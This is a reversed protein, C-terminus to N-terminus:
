RVEGKPVSGPFVIVGSFQTHIYSFEGL